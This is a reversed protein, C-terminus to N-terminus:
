SMRFTITEREYRYVLQQCVEQNAVMKNYTRRSVFRWYGAKRKMTEAGELHVIHLDDQISQAIREVLMKREKSQGPKNPQVALEDMVVATQEVFDSGTSAHTTRVRVQFSHLVANFALNRQLEHDDQLSLKADADVGPRGNLHIINGVHQIEESTVLRPRASAKAASKLLKRESKKLKGM